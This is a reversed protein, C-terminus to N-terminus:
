EFIDIVPPIIAFDNDLYNIHPYRKFGNVVYTILEKENQKKTEM